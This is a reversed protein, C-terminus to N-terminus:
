QRANHLSIKGSLEIARKSTIHEKLYDLYDPLRNSQLCDLVAKRFGEYDKVNVCIKNIEFYAFDDNEPYTGVMHCRCAASELFRPTVPSFGGTREVDDDLGPASLLSVKTQNLLDLFSERSTFEGLIGNISSVMQIKNDVKKGYVYNIDPFESLLRNTYQNLQENQRGIQVMDFERKKNSTRNVLRDPLSLALHNLNIKLKKDLLYQYAEKSTVFVFKSLSFISDFRQLNESKWFDIIIPLVNKRSHFSYVGPPGIHFALYYKNPMFFLHDAIRYFDLRNLIKRGFSPKYIKDYKKGVYILPIGLVKSLEDEWEYVVDWYYPHVTDRITYIGALEIM